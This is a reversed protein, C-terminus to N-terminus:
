SSVGVGDSQKKGKLPLFPQHSVELSLPEKQQMASADNLPLRHMLGEQPDAVSVRHGLSNPHSNVPRFGRKIGTSIGVSHLYKDRRTIGRIHRSVVNLLARPTLTRTIKKPAVARKPHTIRSHPPDTSPSSTSPGRRGSQQAKNQQVGQGFQQEGKAQGAPGPSRKLLPAVAHVTPSSLLGHSRPIDQPVKQTEPSSYLLPCKMGGERGPSDISPDRNHSRVERSGAGTPRTSPASQTDEIGAPADRQKQEPSRSC